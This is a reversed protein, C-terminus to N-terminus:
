GNAIARLGRVLRGIGEAVTASSLAGFAVRLSCGEVMGFTLGPTVAVRHERILRETLRMQDLDRNVRVFCYFAGDPPAVTVLDGLSTL